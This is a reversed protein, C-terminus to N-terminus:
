LFISKTSQMKHILTYCDCHSAYCSQQVIQPDLGLPCSIKQVMWDPGSAWGAEQVTLTPYMEPYLPWLTTSVMCRRGASLHLHTLIIGTGGRQVQGPM